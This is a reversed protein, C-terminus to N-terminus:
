MCYYAGEDRQALRADRGRDDVSKAMGPGKSAREIQETAPTTDNLAAPFLRCRTSDEPGVKQANAATSASRTQLADHLSYGARSSHKPAPSSKFTSRTSSLARSASGPARSFAM